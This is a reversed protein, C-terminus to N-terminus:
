FAVSVKTNMGQCEANMLMATDRSRYFFVWGHFFFFLSFFIVFFLCVVFQVLYFVNLNRVLSFPFWFEHASVPRLVRAVAVAMKDSFGSILPAEYYQLYHRDDAQWSAM